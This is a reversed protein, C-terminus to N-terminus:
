SRMRPRSTSQCGPVSWAPMAVWDTTSRCNARLADDQRAGAGLAMRAGFGLGDASRGEELLDPLPLRLGAAGDDALQAAEAGRGIPRALAEGHVLPEAATRLTEDIEVALAQDIAVLPQDIPVRLEMGGDGIELDLRPLHLAM